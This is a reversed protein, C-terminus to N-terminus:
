HHEVKTEFKKIEFFEDIKEIDGFFSDASKPLYGDNFSDTKADYHPLALIKM